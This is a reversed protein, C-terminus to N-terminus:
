KCAAPALADPAAAKKPLKAIQEAANEVAQVHHGDNSELHYDVIFDELGAYSSKYTYSSGAVLAQAIKLEVEDLTGNNSIPLKGDETLQVGSAKILEPTIAGSKEAALLAQELKYNAVIGDILTAEGERYDYMPERRKNGNADTVEHRGINKFAAPGFRDIAGVLLATRKDNPALNIINLVTANVDPANGRDAAMLVAKATELSGYQMATSLVMNDDQPITYENASDIAEIVKKAEFVAKEESTTDPTFKIAKMEAQVERVAKAERKAHYLPAENQIAAALEAPPLAAIAQQLSQNIRGSITINPDPIENGQADQIMGNDSSDYPGSRRDDYSGPRTFPQLTYLFKATAEATAPKTKEFAAFAKTLEYAEVKEAVIPADPNNGGAYRASACDEAGYHDVLAKLSQDAGAISARRSFYAADSLSNKLDYRPQKIDMELESKLIATVLEPMDHRVVWDFIFANEKPTRKADKLAAAIETAPHAKFLAPANAKILEAVSHDYPTGDKYPNAGLYFNKNNYKQTTRLTESLFGAAAGAVPVQDLMEKQKTVADPNAQSEAIEPNPPYIAFFGDVLQNPTVAKVAQEVINALFADAPSPTTM